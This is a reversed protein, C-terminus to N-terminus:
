ELSRITSQVSAQAGSISLGAGDRRFDPSFGRATIRYMFIYDADQEDPLVANPAKTTGEYLERYTMRKVLCQPQQAYTIQSGTFEDPVVNAAAWNSETRWEDDTGGLIMAVAPPSSTVREECYRLATEAAQFALSQARMNQSIVDGFLSTRMAVASSIGIVVVLILAIVLVAGKSRTARCPAHRARLARTSAQHNM